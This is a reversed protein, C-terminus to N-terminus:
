CIEILTKKTYKATLGMKEAELLIRHLKLNSSEALQLTGDNTINVQNQPIGSQGMLKLMINQLEEESYAKEQATCSNHVISKSVELVM